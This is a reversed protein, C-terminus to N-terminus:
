ISFQFRLSTTPKFRWSNWTPMEFLSNFRKLGLAMATTNRPGYACRLYLISVQYALRSPTASFKMVHMEFLSNFGYDGELRAHFIPKVWGWGKSRYTVRVKM